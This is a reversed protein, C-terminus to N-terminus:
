LLTDDDIVRRHRLGVVEELLAHFAEHLHDVAIEVLTEAFLLLPSLRRSLGRRGAGSWHRTQREGRLVSLPEPARSMLSGAAVGHAGVCRVEQVLELGPAVDVRDRICM